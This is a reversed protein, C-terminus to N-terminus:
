SKGGNGEEGILDILQRAYNKRIGDILADAQAPSLNGNSKANRHAQVDVQMGLLCTAILADAFSMAQVPVDGDGVDELGHTGDDQVTDWASSWGVFNDGRSGKISRTCVVKTIRLQSKIRKIRAKQEDNM